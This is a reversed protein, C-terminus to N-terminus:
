SNIGVNLKLYFWIVGNSELCRFEENRQINKFLTLSEIFASGVCVCVCVCVCVTNENHM